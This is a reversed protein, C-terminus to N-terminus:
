LQTKKLPVDFVVVIFTIFKLLAKWGGFLKEHCKKLENFSWFFLLKLEMKREEFIELKM